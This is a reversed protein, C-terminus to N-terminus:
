RKKPPKAPTLTKIAAEADKTLCFNTNEDGIGLVGGRMRYRSSKLAPIARPDRLALLRPIANKRDACTKGNVLDHLAAKLQVERDAVTLDGTPPVPIESSGSGQQVPQKITPKPPDAKPKPEVIKPKDAPKGPKKKDDDSALAAIIGILLLAGLVIAGIAFWRRPIPESSPAFSGASTDSRPLPSLSETPATGSPAPMPTMMMSNAVGLQAPFPTPTLAHEGSVPLATTDLSGSDRPPVIVPASGVPMAAVIADLWMLYDSASPIREASVKVLGRQIVDEIGPPLE